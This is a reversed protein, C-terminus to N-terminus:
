EIDRYPVEQAYMQLGVVTPGKTHTLYTARAYVNHEPGTTFLIDKMFLRPVTM